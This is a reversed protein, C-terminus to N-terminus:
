ADARLTEQKEAIQGDIQVAAALVRRPMMGRVKRIKIWETDLSGGRFGSLLDSVFCRGRRM